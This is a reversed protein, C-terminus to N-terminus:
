NSPLGSQIIANTERVMENTATADQVTVKSGTTGKEIESRRVRRPLRSGTEPPLTVWEDDATATKESGTTTCGALVLGTILIMRLFVLRVGSSKPM